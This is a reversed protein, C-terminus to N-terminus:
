GTVEKRPEDEKGEMAKDKEKDKDEDYSKVIAEVEGVAQTFGYYGLLFRRM